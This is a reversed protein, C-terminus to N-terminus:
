PVSRWYVFCDEGGVARPICGVVVWGLEEYLARAPNSSFVLNFQIADFGLHPARWTSDEVLHRGIGQRWRGRAVVYGANAIHAARGVFNPKLYYAGALESGVRAAVTISVPHIWTAEFGEDTLPAEHPFGDGSDVIEAFLEFLDSEEERRLPGISLPEGHRTRLAREDSAQGKTSAGKSPVPDSAV